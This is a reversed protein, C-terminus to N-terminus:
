TGGIQSSTTFADEIPVGDLSRLDLARIVIQLWSSSHRSCTLTIYELTVAWSEELYKRALTLHGANRLVSGINSLAKAKRFLDQERDAAVVAESWKRIARKIDFNPAAIAAAGANLLDDISVKQKSASRSPIHVPHSLWLYLYLYLYLWISPHDQRNQSHDKSAPKDGSLYGGDTNSRKLYHHVRTYPTQSQSLLTPTRTAALPRHQSQQTQQLTQQTLAGFAQAQLYTHTSAQSVPASTPAAVSATSSSPSSSAASATREPIFVVSPQRPLPRHSLVPM